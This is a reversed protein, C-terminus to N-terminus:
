EQQQLDATDTEKDTGDNEVQRISISINGAESEVLQKAKERQGIDYLEIDAGALELENDSNMELSTSVKATRIDNNNLLTYFYEDYEQKAKDLFVETMEREAIGTNVSIDTDLDIDNLSLRLGKDGFPAIVALLTIMGMLARLQKKTKDAPALMDIVAGIIGMICAIFLAKRIPDM